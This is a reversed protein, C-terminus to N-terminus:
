YRVGLTGVGCRPHIIQQEGMSGQIQIMHSLSWLDRSGIEQSLLLTGRPVTCITIAKNEGTPDYRLTASAAGGMDKRILHSRTSGTKTVM